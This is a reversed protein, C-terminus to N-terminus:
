RRAKPSAHRRDNITGHNHLGIIDGPYAEDAIERDSAMFTLANALASGQRHARPVGEHRRRVQGLLHAHVRHPRSAASGHEGPDQVRLRHAEDEHPAVERSTTERPRPAPAHEVFFDLLPQVGFNNIASGFFVPTQKGALYDAPDFPHSAGQVLEIEDRLEALM